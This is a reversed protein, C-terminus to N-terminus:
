GFVRHIAENEMDIGTNDEMCKGAQYRGIQRVDVLLYRRERNLYNMARWKAYRICYSTARPPDIELIELRMVQALDDRIENRDGALFRAISILKSDIDATIKM